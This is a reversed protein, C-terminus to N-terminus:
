WEPAESEMWRRICGRCAEPSADCGDPYHAMHWLEDHIRPCIEGSECVEDLSMEPFRKSIFGWGFIRHRKKYRMGKLREYVTM